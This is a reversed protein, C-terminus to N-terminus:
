ICYDIAAVNDHASNDKRVQVNGIEIHVESVEEM